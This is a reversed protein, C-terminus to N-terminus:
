FHPSVGICGLGGIAWLHGGRQLRQTIVDIAAAIPEREAAVAQAVRQDEGNIIDVIELTSATDINVSNENRLETTLANLNVPTANLSIGDHLLLPAHKGKAGASRILELWQM